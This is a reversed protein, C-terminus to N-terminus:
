TWSSEPLLFLQQNCYQFHIESIWHSIFISYFEISIGEVQAGCVILSLGTLILNSGQVVTQGEQATCQYTGDDSSTVNDVVLFFTFLNDDITSRKMRIHPVDQVLPVGDKSWTVNDPEKINVQCYLWVVSGEVITRSGGDFLVAPLSTM